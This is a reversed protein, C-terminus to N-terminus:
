GNKKIAKIKDLILKTKNKINRKLFENRVANAELDDVNNQKLKLLKKAGKLTYGKDKLLFKIYKIKEIEKEDYYRRNGSLLTPRIQKFEKEWFRIVHNQPKGTNKDRLDLLNSLESINM